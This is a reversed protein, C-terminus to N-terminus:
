GPLVTVPCRLGPARAIRADCTVLVCDLAEALAVYSADYASLNARLQWMRELLGGVAYRIVGMRMWAHLAQAAAKTQVRGAAENRRLANAVEPDILYPAHLQGAGLARRAPGANVLAAVAASADVVIM